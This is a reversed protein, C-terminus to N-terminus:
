QKKDGKRMAEIIGTLVEGFAAAMGRPSDSDMFEAFGEAFFERINYTAYKSLSPGVDGAKKGVKSLVKRKIYREVETENTKVYKWWNNKNLYNNLVHGYEHTVTSFATLGEGKVLWGSRRADIKQPVSKKEFNNGAWYENVLYVKGAGRYVFATANYGQDDVATVNKVFGDNIEPYKVLVKEVKDAVGKLTELKYKEVGDFGIGHEIYFASVLHELNEADRWNNPAAAPAKKVVKKQAKPKEMVPAAKEKVTEAKPYFESAKFRSFVDREKKPLDEEWGAPPPDFEWTVYKSIPVIVSRCMFHNPPTHQDLAPDTIAWSHGHLAQCIETTREDLIASYRYGAIAKSQDFRYRRGWNFAKNSETRAIIKTRVQGFRRFDDELAAALETGVTGQDLHELITPQMYHFAAKDTQKALEKTYLQYWAFADDNTKTEDFEALGAELLEVDATSQGYDWISRIFALLLRQFDAAMGSEKEMDEKTKIKSAWATMIKVIVEAAADMWGDELETLMHDMEAYNIRLDSAYVKLGDQKAKMIIAMNDVALLEKRTLALTM